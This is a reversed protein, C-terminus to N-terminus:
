MDLLLRQMEDNTKVVKANAQFDARAMLLQVVASSLNVTDGDPSSAPLAARTVNSAAKEFQTQAQLLGALASVPSM